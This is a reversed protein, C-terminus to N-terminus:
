ALHTELWDWTKEKSQNQLSLGEGAKRCYWFWWNEAQDCVDIEMM